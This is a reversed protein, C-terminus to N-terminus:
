STFNMEHRHTDESSFEESLIEKKTANREHRQFVESHIAPIPQRFTWENINIEDFM